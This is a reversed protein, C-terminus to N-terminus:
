GRAPRYIQLVSGDADAEAEILDLVLPASLEAFLSLGAGLAVPQHM